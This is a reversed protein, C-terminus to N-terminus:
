SISSRALIQNLNLQDPPFIGDNDGLGLALLLRLGLLELTQRTGTRQATGEPVHKESQDKQNQKPSHNDAAM